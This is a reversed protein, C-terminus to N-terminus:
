KGICISGLKEGLNLGRAVCLALGNIWLSLKGRERFLNAKIFVVWLCLYLVLWLATCGGLLRVLRKDSGRGGGLPYPLVVKRLQLSNDM